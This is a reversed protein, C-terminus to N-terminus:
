VVSKPFTADFIHCHLYKSLTPPLCPCLDRIKPSGPTTSTTRILTQLVGDYFRVNIANPLIKMRCVAYYKTLHKVVCSDNLEAVRYSSTDSLLGSASMMAVLDDSLDPDTSPEGAASNGNPPRQKSFTYNAEKSGTVSSQRDLKSITRYLQVYLVTIAVIQFMTLAVLHRMRMVTTVGAPLVSWCAM